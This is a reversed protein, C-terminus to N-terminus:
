IAEIWAELGSIDRARQRDTLSVKEARWRLIGCNGMQCVADSYGRPLARGLHGNNEARKGPTFVTFKCWSGSLWGTCLQM